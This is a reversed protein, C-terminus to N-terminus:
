LASAWPLYKDKLFIPAPPLLWPSFFLLYFLCLTLRVVAASWILRASVQIKKRARDNVQSVGDTGKGEGLDKCLLLTKETQVSRVVAIGQSGGCSETGGAPLALLIIVTNEGMARCMGQERQGRSGGRWPAASETRRTSPSSITEFVVLSANEGGPGSCGVILYFGFVFGLRETDSLSRIM